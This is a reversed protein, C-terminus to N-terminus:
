AAFTIKVVGAPRKVALGFRGECRFRIMNREFDSAGIGAGLADPDYLNESWDIVADERVHLESGGAFDALYGVGATAATSLVVPVGWLRRSARQVPLRDGLYYSGENDLLLEVRQWDNPHLVWGSPSLSLVELLTVAKRTSTLVSEGAPATYVQVGSVNALGTLNEGTGSGGIIQAELATELGLRLEADLFQRLLDADALDQRPVPESLHAITRVRDDYRTATFVSEPKRAGAAVATANSTRATQRLYAYHGSTNPVTPLLQRLALVPEGSTVVEPDLPVSVNVQGSPALAKFGGFADAHRRVLTAGWDSGGLAKVRPPQQKGGTVGGYHGGFGADDDPSLGIGDGLERIADKVAKDDDIQQAKDRLQAAKRHIEDVATEEDRRLDRGEFTARDRINSLKRRLQRAEDIVVQERMTYNPM